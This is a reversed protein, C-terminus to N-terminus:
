GEYCREKLICCLGFLCQVIGDELSGSNCLFVITYQFTQFIANDLAQKTKATNLFLATVLFMREKRSQQDELLRKAEGGYTNLDSPIIDM